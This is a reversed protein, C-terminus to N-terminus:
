SLNNIKKEKGEIIVPRTDQLIETFVAKLEMQDGKIIKSLKQLEHNINDQM